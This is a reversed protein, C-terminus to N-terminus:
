RYAMGTRLGIEPTDMEYVEVRPRSERASFDSMFTGIEAYPLAPHPQTKRVKARAPLLHDLHGRWRAPNEGTRDGRM